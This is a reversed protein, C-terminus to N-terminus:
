GSVVSLAREGITTLGESLVLTTLKNCDAFARPAIAEIGSLEVRSPMDIEATKKLCWEVLTHGDDSLIYEIKPM